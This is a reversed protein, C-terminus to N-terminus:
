ASRPSASRPSIASHDLGFGNTELLHELEPDMREPFPSRVIDQILMRLDVRIRVGNPAKPYGANRPDVEWYQSFSRTRRSM